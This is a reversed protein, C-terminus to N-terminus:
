NDATKTEERAKEIAQKVSTHALGCIRGLHAYSAGAEEYARLLFLRRATSVPRVRSGSLILAQSIRSKRCVETLIHEVSASKRPQRKQCKKLTCEVFSGDGLIREDGMERDEKPRAALKERGGSSRILGGGRLEERVGQQFGAKVFARYKRRAKGVQNGFWGLVWDVDQCAYHQKGLIVAHGTYPNTDLQSLETLLRGRIPNLHIYRVLELFYREEEVVISKYRNQFLHGSRKHRRNHWVSYGTMLRRMIDVMSAVQPRLLLHFHNPMLAWAYLKAQGEIIIESLRELFAHRDNRDRFIERKEIGRAM